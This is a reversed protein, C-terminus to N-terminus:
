GGAALAIAQEVESLMTNEMSLLFESMPALLFYLMFLGVLVKLEINIAFVNIQPIAKMLIGMGVQGMMEAGLVPLCLKMALLTCDIFLAAVKDAASPGLAAQGFPVVGGSDLMLRLLTHHGNAAFFILISFINLVNAAPTAQGQFSPDYTQAMAMGMQEDMIHGAYAPVFLFINMIVGVLFGVGLELIMRVALELLTAPMPLIEGSYVYSVSVALVLTFGAKFTNPVNNRGFFPTFLIFGAMRVTIYLFLTLRDWDLM